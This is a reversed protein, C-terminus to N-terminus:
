IKQRDFLFDKCFLWINNFTFFFLAIFAYGIDNGALDSMTFPGIKMGFSTLAADVQPVTCGEELLFCSESSYNAIMRNGVFGDGDKVVVGVKSLLKVIEQIYRITTISSDISQVIEVLPMVHAPSFFHMGCTQSPDKYSKFIESVSLTSTNSVVFCSDSAISNLESVIQKKIDLKEFVAEIILDCKSLSALSTSTTLNQILSSLGKKSSLSKEMRKKAQIVAKENIDVLIVQTFRKQLFALAIGQGMTGGGIVGVTMKKRAKHTKAIVNPSIPKAARRQAFFLHRKAKGQLSNVLIDFFLGKEYDLGEDLPLHCSSLADVATHVADGGKEKPPLKKRFADCAKTVKDKSLSIKSLERKQLPKQTQKTYDVVWNDIRKDKLIGQVIGLKLAEKAPVVRGSCIIGLSHEIGM